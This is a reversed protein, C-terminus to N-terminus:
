SAARFASENEALTDLISPLHEFVYDIDEMVTDRGFSFRITGYRKSDLHIADLV